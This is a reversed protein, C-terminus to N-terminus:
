AVRQRAARLAGAATERDRWGAAIRESRAARAAEWATRAEALDDEADGLAASASAVEADLARARGADLALAPSVLDAHTLPTSPVLGRTHEALDGIPVETGAVLVSGGDLGAAALEPGSLRARVLADIAARVPATIDEPLGHVVTLRPNLDIGWPRPTGGTLQLIRM